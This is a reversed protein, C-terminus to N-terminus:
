STVVSSQKRILMGHEDLSPMRVNVPVPQGDIWVPCAVTQTAHGGPLEIPEVLELHVAQPDSLAQEFNNIPACPVGAVQFAHLWESATQQMFIPALISFLNKQHKARLSSTAFDPHEVLEPKGVVSCVLAWLKNNGAAVVFWADRAAFARYPANRPHASGLRQPNVGSGFYESTQLASVAITTAFMPVDIHGGPGGARVRAFMSSISFAAYLGATFDSIPVGCKVPAGEQEGTVSM